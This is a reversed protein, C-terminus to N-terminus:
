QKANKEATIPVALDKRWRQLLGKIKKAPVAFSSGSFVGTSSYIKTILGAVEASSNILAGGSTGPNVSVDTQILPTKSLAPLKVDLASVIGLSSSMSLSFAAGIGLVSQGEKLSNESLMLTPLQGSNVQLLAIDSGSDSRLLTANLSSGQSTTVIIKSSGVVVHAATLIWSYEANTDIIFGSGNRQPPLKDFGNEFFDNYEGLISERERQKSTKFFSKKKNARITVMSPKVNEIVSIFEDHSYAPTSICLNTFAIFILGCFRYKTSMNTILALKIRLM